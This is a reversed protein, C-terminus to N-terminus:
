IKDPRAQGLNVRSLSRDVQSFAAAMVAANCEGPSSASAPTRMVSRGREPPKPRALLKAVKNYVSNVSANM